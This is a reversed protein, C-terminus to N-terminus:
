PLPLSALLLNGWRLKALAVWLVALAIQAALKPQTRWGKRSKLKAWDDAFGLLAYSVMAGCFLGIDALSHPFYAAAVFFAALPATIVFSIGGM